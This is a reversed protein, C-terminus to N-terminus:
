TIGKCKVALWLSKWCFYDLPSDKYADFYRKLRLGTVYQFNMCKNNMMYKNLYNCLISKNICLQHMENGCKYANILGKNFM